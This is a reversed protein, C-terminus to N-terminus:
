SGGLKNVFRSSRESYSLDLDCSLERMCPLGRRSTRPRKSSTWRRAGPQDTAAADFARPTERAAPWLIRGDGARPRHARARPDAKGDASVSWSPREIRTCSRWIGYDEGCNWRHGALLAPGADDGPPSSQGVVRQRADACLDALLESSAPARRRHGHEAYCCSPPPSRARRARPPPARGARRRAALCGLATAM